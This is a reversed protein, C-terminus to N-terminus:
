NTRTHKKKSKVVKNSKSHEKKIQQQRIHKSTYVEKNFKKDKKRNRKQVGRSGKGIKTVCFDYELEIM